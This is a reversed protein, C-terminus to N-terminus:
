MSYHTKPEFYDIYLDGNDSLMKSCSRYNNHNGDYASNDSDDKRKHLADEQLGYHLPSVFQPNFQDHSIQIGASIIKRRHKKFLNSLYFDDGLRCAKENLHKYFDSLLEKTFYDRRYLVGSFGELLDALKGPFQHINNRNLVERFWINDLRDNNDIFTTGTIICNPFLHAYNTYLEIIYPPYYVDDDVSLIYTSPDSVFPISSVIKTAPGIDDCFNVHILKNNTIFEPLPLSFRDGTRHFVKPLNLIIRDPKVTQACISDLVLKIKHIRKPSTTLSVVIREKKRFSIFVAITIASILVVIFAIKHYM